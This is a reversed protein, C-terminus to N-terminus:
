SNRRLLLIALSGTGLLCLTGPEPTPAVDGGIYDLATSSTAVAVGYDVFNNGPLVGNSWFNVVEGNGIDLLLGYIDVFGGQFPYDTATQPSGGPYYLNDYSLSGHDTGSAVAFRSFDNPALLNTMDPMARSIPEVGLIKANLIGINTDSFTGSAATVEYAQPYTKDTGPGYTLVVTGSTGPGAFSFQVTDANSRATLAALVLAAFPYVLKHRVHTVSRNESRYNSPGPVLLSPIGM